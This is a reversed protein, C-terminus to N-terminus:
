SQGPREWTKSDANFIDKNEVQLEALCSDEIEPKSVNVVILWLVLALAVSILKLGLNERFFKM